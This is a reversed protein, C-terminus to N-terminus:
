RAQGRVDDLRGAHHGSPKGRFVSVTEAAHDIDDCFGPQGHIVFTGHCESGSRRETVIGCDLIAAVVPADTIVNVSSTILGGAKKAWIIRSRNVIGPAAGVTKKLQIEVHVGAIGQLEHEHAIACIKLNGLRAQVILNPRIRIRRLSCPLLRRDQGPVM